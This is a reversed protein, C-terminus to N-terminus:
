ASYRAFVGSGGCSFCAGGKTHSFASIRGSGMCKPCNIAAEPKVSSAVLSERHAMIANSEAHDAETMHGFLEALYNM